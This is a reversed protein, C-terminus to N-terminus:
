RNQGSLRLAQVREALRALHTPESLQHDGGKIIEVTVDDSRLVPPISLVHNVPVVTDADGHLMHVPVDIPLIGRDLLNQNRSEEVLRRTIPYPDPQYESPRFWVGEDYLEKRAEEGMAPLMLRTPFDPAPAILVLGRVRAPRALALLLSMWGGMSSGVIIQPGECIRDLVALADDFWEGITGDEFKGSSQGHGAYDFRTYSFGAEESLDSLFSAKTGTMSSNFGGCFLVGPQQGETIHYAIRTTPTELYAPDSM